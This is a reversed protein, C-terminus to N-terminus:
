RSSKNYFSWDGDNFQLVLTDKTLMIINATDREVKQKQKDNNIPLRNTGAALILRGNFIHWESYHKIEPYELPSMEDTTQMRKMGKTAVTNGRKLQIVYERPVLMAEKVSDPMDAIYRRRLRRSMNEVARLKPKVMFAWQAKLDDLNIVQLAEMKDEPNITVALEDGISPKGFIKKQQSANIIDFTDPDAGTYPLLVLLSDTTGDCALGYVTSDGPQRQLYNVGTKEEETKEAEQKNGCAFLMMLATGFTLIQRKM